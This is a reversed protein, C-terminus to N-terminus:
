QITKFNNESAWGRSCERSTKKKSSENTKNTQKYKTNEKQIEERKEDIQKVSARWPHFHGGPPLITKHKQWHKYIM